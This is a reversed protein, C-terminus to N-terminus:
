DKIVVGQGTPLELIYYGRQGFWKSEEIMQRQALYQGFDDLLCIGGPALRPFLFELAAIEAKSSNMDLHIFSFTAPLTVEKFIEPVRGKIIQVNKFGTFRERVKEINKPDKYKKWASLETDRDLQDAPIGEWTDILYLTGRYQAFDTYRVALASSIGRYVGCEILDFGLNKGRIFCWLYVHLRWVKESEKTDEALANFIDRFKKDRIFSFNRNMVHLNEGYFYSAYNKNLIATVLKEKKEKTFDM